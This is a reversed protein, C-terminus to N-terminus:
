IVQVSKHKNCFVTGRTVVTFSEHRVLLFTLCFKGVRASLYCEIDNDFSQFAEILRLRV